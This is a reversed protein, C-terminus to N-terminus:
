ARLPLAGRRDVYQNGTPYVPISLVPIRGPRIAPTTGRVTENLYYLGPRVSRHFGVRDPGDEVRQARVKGDRRGLGAGRDGGARACHERLRDVGVRVAAVLHEQQPAHLLGPARRAGVVGEAPALRQEEPREDDGDHQEREAAQKREVLTPVLQPVRLVHVVWPHRDADQHEAQYGLGNRHAGAQLFDVLHAAVPRDPAPEALAALALQHDDQALIEGR